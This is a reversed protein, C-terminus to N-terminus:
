DNASEQLRVVQHTRQSEKCAEVLELVKLGDEVTCTPVRQWGSNLLGLFERAVGLFMENRDLAFSEVAWAAEAQHGVRVENPDFLCKITGREGVVTVQKEHPRGFLDLHITVRRGDPYGAVIDVLDDTDIELDSIKEVCAFLEQPVGFFWVMLDIFHSEDLLAGGGLDRSAMFFNQYPEWPHWDALHASMVFRAHRVAGIAGSEMITKMRKLPEWWRYTYGLLV